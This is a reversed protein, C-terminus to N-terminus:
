KPDLSDARLLLARAADANRNEANWLAALRRLAAATERKAEPPYARIAARLREEGARSQGSDILTEASETLFAPDSIKGGPFATEAERFLRSSMARTEPDRHAAVALKMRLDPHDPHNFVAKELLLRAERPHGSAMQEDALKIFESPSGGRIKLLEGTHFDALEPKGGLRYRKALAQHALAHRPDIALV